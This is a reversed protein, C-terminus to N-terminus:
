PVAASGVRVPDNPDNIGDWRRYLTVTAPPAQPLGVEVRYLCDCGAVVEPHMDVPQILVDLAEGEQRYFGEVEQECRFHLPDGAARIGPAAEWATMAESWGTDYPSGDCPSQSLDEIPEADEWGAPLDPGFLACGALTFFWLITRV